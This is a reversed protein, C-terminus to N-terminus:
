CRVVIPFLWDLVLGIAVCPILGLLFAIVYEYWYIM